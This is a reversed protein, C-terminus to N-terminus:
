SFAFNIRPKVRSSTSDHFKFDAPESGAKETHSTYLLGNAEFEPHFAYSGLGSGHGPANIFKPKVKSIDFVEKLSEGTFLYLKGRLDQLFVREKQGKLVTMQNIRARPIKDASAPATMVEALQLTLDSKAIKTPLPDTKPSGLGAATKDARALDAPTNKHTHIFSLLATMEAANLETPPMPVKYKKFLAVARKDGSKVLQQSNHIFSSIWASPMLTTIGSLNPGIGQQKFNHCASCKQQFLTQGQAIVQKDASYKISVGQSSASLVSLALLAAMGSRRFFRLM